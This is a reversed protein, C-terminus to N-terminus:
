GVQVRRESPLKRSRKAQLTASIAKRLEKASYNRTAEIRLLPLDAAEFARDVFYDREQRDRRQHSRDDVEIALIPEQSDQDCLVFDIHKCNIRNQWSQRKATGTEVELLDAIRVMGFVDYQENAARLLARYFAQENRSMISPKKRYPYDRSGGGIRTLLYWLIGVAPVIAIWYEQLLQLASDRTDIGEQFGLSSRSEYWYFNPQVFPSQLTGEFRDWLPNGTLSKGSVFRFAM